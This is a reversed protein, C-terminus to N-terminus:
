TYLYYQSSSYHSCLVSDVSLCARAEAATFDMSKHVFPVIVRTTWLPTIAYPLVVVPQVFVDIDRQMPDSIEEGDLLLGERGAFM